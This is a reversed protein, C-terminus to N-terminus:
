RDLWKILSSGHLMECGQRFGRMVEFYEGVRSGLRVYAKSGNFLNSRIRILYGDVGFEYLM